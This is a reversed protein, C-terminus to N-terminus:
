DGAERIATLLVLPDPFNECYQYRHALRITGGSDVVFEGPLQWPSDVLPRGERHREEALRLGAEQDGRRLEDAADYMVQAPTGELLGYARYAELDPDCLVPCPLRQREAYAATREPEGQGVVVVRAGAAAYRPYERRLREARINGCGCGFHRWFVVLATGGHWFESLRRPAGASDDRDLDPAPDGTQVPV